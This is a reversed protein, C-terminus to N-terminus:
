ITKSIIAKIFTRLRKPLRITNTRVYDEFQRFNTELLKKEDELKQYEEQMKQLEEDKKSLETELIHIRNEMYKINIWYGNFIFTSVIDPNLETLHKQYIRKRYHLLRADGQISQIDKSWIHYESTIKKIHYFPIKKSVRITLDWDECMELDEDFGGVKRLVDKDFMLCMFPIYNYFLLTERSFDITPAPYKRTQIVAKDAPNYETHVFYSETYAVRYDSDKLFCVLTSVHDDYFIDDDDLFCVFSGSANEIGRNAARTRGERNNELYNIAIDQMQEKLLKLDCIMEGDNVLVVEIPRYTQAAISQLARKLLKPRDKTRVIISVLPNDTEDAM